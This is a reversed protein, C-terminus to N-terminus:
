LRNMAPSLAAPMSTSRLTRASRATVSAAANARRTSAALAASQGLRESEGVRLDLSQPAERPAATRTVLLRREDDLSRREDTLCHGGPPRDLGLEHSRPDRRHGRCPSGDMLEPGTHGLPDRGCVRRRPQEGDDARRRRVRDHELAGLEDDDGVPNAIGAVQPRDQARGLRRADLDHHHRWPGDVHEVRLHDPRRRARQEVDRHQGGIQRRHPLGPSRRTPVDDCRPVGWTSASQLPRSAM